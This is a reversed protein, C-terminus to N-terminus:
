RIIKGYISGKRNDVKIKTWKLTKINFMATCTKNYSGTPIVVYQDQYLSCQEHNYLESTGCPQEDNVQFTTMRLTKVQSKGALRLDVVRWQQQEEAEEEEEEEEEEEQHQQQIILLHM